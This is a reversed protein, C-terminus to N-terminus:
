QFNNFPVTCLMSTYVSYERPIYQTDRYSIERTSPFDFHRVFHSLNYTFFISALLLAFIM